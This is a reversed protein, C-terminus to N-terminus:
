KTEEMQKRLDEFEKRVNRVRRMKTEPDWYVMYKQPKPIYRSPFAGFLCERLCQRNKKQRETLM